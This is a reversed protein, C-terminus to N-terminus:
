MRCQRLNEEDVLRAMLMGQTIKPKKIQGSVMEMDISIETGCDDKIFKVTMAIDAWAWYGNKEYKGDIVYDPTNKKAWIGDYAITWSYGMKDAVGTLAMELLTTADEAVQEDTEYKQHKRDWAQKAKTADWQVDYLGANDCAWQRFSERNATSNAEEDPKWGTEWSYITRVEAHTRFFKAVLGNEVAVVTIRNARTM